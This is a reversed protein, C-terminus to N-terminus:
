AIQKGQTAQQNDLAVQLAASLGAPADGIAEIGSPVLGIKGLQQVRQFLSRPLVKALDSRATLKLPACETLCHTSISVLGPRIVLCNRMSQIADSNYQDTEEKIFERPDNLHVNFGAEALCHGILQMLTTKGSGVVGSIDIQVFLRQQEKTPVPLQSAM